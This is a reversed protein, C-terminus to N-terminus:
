SQNEHRAVEIDKLILFISSRIYKWSISVGDLTGRINKGTTIHPLNPYHTSHPFGDIFLPFVKVKGQIIIKTLLMNLIKTELTNKTAQDIIKTHSDVCFHM